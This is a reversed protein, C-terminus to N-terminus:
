LFIEYIEYKIIIFDFIESDEYWESIMLNLFM